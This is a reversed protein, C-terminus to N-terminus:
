ASNDHAAGLPARDPAFAIRGNVMAILVLPVDLGPLYQQLLRKPQPFAFCQITPFIWRAARALVFQVAPGKPRCAMAVYFSHLSKLSM